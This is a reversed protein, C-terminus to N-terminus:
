GRGRRYSLLDDPTRHSLHALGGPSETTTSGADQSLTSRHVCGPDKRHYVFRSETELGRRAIDQDDLVIRVQALHHRLQQREFAESGRRRRTPALRQRIQSCGGC